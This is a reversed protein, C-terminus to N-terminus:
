FYLPVEITENCQTLMAYLGNLTGADNFAEAIHLVRQTDSLINLQRCYSGWFKDLHMNGAAM